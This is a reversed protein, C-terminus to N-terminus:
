EFKFSFRFNPANGGVTNLVTTNAGIVQQTEEGRARSYRGTGGTISRVWTGGGAEIGSSTIQHAPALNSPGIVGLMFDQHTVFKPDLRDNNFILWGRCLWNGIAKASAPDFGTGAQITGM